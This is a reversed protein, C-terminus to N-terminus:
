RSPFLIPAPLLSPSPSLCIIRDPPSSDWRFHVSSEIIFVYYLEQNDESCDSVWGIVLIRKLYFSNKESDVKYKFVANFEKFWKASSFSHLLSIRCALKDAMLNQVKFLKRISIFGLPGYNSWSTWFLSTSNWFTDSVSHFYTVFAHSLCLSETVECTKFFSFLCRGM